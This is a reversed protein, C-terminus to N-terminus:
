LLGEIKPHSTTIKVICYYYYKNCIMLIAKEALILEESMM